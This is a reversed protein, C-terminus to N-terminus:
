RRAQRSTWVLALILTLVLYLLIAISIAGGCTSPTAQFARSHRELYNFAYLPSLSLLVHAAKILVYPREDLDLDLLRDPDVRRFKPPLRVWLRFFDFPSSPGSAM